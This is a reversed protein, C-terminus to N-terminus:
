FADGHWIQCCDTMGNGLYQTKKNELHRGNAMKSQLFISIENLSPNCLTSICWWAMNLKSVATKRYELRRGDTIKSKLFRSIKNASPTRLTL